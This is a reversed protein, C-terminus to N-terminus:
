VGGAGCGGYLNGAAIGSVLLVRARENEADDGCGDGRENGGGHGGRGGVWQPRDGDGFHEGDGGGDSARGSAADGGAGRSCSVRSNQQQEYVGGLQFARSLM